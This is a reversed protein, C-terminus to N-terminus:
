AYEWHPISFHSLQIKPNNIPLNLSFDRCDTFYFTLAFIQLSFLRLFQRRSCFSAEASGSTRFNAIQSRFPLTKSGFSDLRIAPQGTGKPRRLRGHRRSHSPGSAFGTPPIPRLGYRGSPCLAGWYFHWKEKNRGIDKAIKTGLPRDDFRGIIFGPTRYTKGRQFAAGKVLCISYYNNANM